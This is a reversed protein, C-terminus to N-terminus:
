VKSIEINGNLSDLNLKMVGDGSIGQLLNRTRTGQFIDSLVESDVKGFDSFADWTASFLSPIHLRVDGNKSNLTCSIVSDAEVVTEIVGNTSFANLSGSVVNAYINGNVTELSSERVSNKVRIRGNISSAWVNGGPKDIEIDANGGRVAVEGCGESIKINGNSGSVEINTGRPVEIIYDVYTMVGDPREVPETIIRTVANDADVAVISDLYALVVGDESLHKDYVKIDAQISIQQIQPDNHTLILVSGDINELILRPSASVTVYKNEVHEPSGVVPPIYPAVYTFSAWVMTGTVMTAMVLSYMIRAMM